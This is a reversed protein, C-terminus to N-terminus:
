NHFSSFQTKMWKQATQLGCDALAKWLIWQIPWNAACSLLEGQHCCLLHIHLMCLDINKRIQSNIPVHFLYSVNLMLSFFSFMKFGILSICLRKNKVQFLAKWWWHSSNGHDFKIDVLFELLLATPWHYIIVFVRGCHVSFAICVCLM